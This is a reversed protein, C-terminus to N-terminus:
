RAPQIVLIAVTVAVVIFIVMAAIMWCCWLSRRGVDIEDEDM